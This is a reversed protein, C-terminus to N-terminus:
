LFYYLDWPVHSQFHRDNCFIMLLLCEPPTQLRLSDDAPSFPRPGLPGDTPLPRLFDDATSPPLPALLCEPPTQLRLFDDAPSPPQPVLLCELPPTQPRLFDDTTSFPRPRLPCEVPPTQPRLFDDVKASPLPQAGLHYQSPPPPQHGMWQRLPEAMLYPSYPLGSSHHHEVAVMSVWNDLAKRAYPTIKCRYSDEARWQLQQMDQFMKKYTRIKKMVLKGNEEAESLQREKEAQECEKMRLKRLNSPVSERQGHIPLSRNDTTVKHVEARVKAEYIEMFYFTEWAIKIGPFSSVKKKTHTCTSRLGFSTKWLFIGLTSIGLFVIIIAIWPIGFFDPGPQFHDPLSNIVWASHSTKYDGSMWEYGLCSFM